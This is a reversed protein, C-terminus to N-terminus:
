PAFTEHQPLADNIDWWNAKDQVFIHFAPRTKLEENLTGARIRVVDPANHRKSLIPSGCQGCFQRVKGPSSEFSKLLSEGKIIRFVNAAVPINTVFPTGQAQRCQKCHCIQIPALEGDIEFQIGQCLCNGTYM